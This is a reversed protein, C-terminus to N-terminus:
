LTTPFSQWNPRARPVEREYPLKAVYGFFWFNARM